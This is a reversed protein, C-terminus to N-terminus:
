NAPSQDTNAGDALWAALQGDRDAAVLEQYGGVHHNNVFIQPVTRAKPARESLQRRHDADSDIRREDWSLGKSKLLNKAASCYGCVATTYIEIDPM